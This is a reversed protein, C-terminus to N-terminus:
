SRGNKWAIYLVLSCLQLFFHQGEILRRSIFSDVIKNVHRSAEEDSVRQEAGETMDVIVEEYGSHPILSENEIRQNKEDWEAGIHVFVVCESRSTM